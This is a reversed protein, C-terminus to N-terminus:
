FIINTENTLYPGLGQKSADTHIEIERKQDFAVLVPASVFKDKLRDYAQQCEGTWVFPIGKKTLHTIPNSIMSFNSIFRRNFSFLGLISKVEKPNKPPSFDTVTKIKKPNIKVGQQGVIFGLLEVEPKSFACKMHHITLNAYRLRQFVRKLYGLHKEFTKSFVFWDDVYIYLCRIAKQSHSPLQSVLFDHFIYNM